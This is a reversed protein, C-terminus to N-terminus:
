RGGRRSLARMSVFDQDKTILVADSAIAQDWIKRDSATSLAIHAVHVDEHGLANLHLALGSPLQADILFRV